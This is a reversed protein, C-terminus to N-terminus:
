IPQNRCIECTCQSSRLWHKVKDGFRTKPPSDVSPSEYDAQILAYALEESVLIGYGREVIHDNSNGLESALKFALKRERVMGVTTITLIDSLRHPFKERDERVRNRVHGSLWESIENKPAQIAQIGLSRCVDNVVVRLTNDDLAFERALEEFRVREKRSGSSFPVRSKLGLSPQVPSGKNDDQGYHNLLAVLRNRTALCIYIGDPREVWQDGKSLMQKLDQYGIGSRVLYRLPYPFKENEIEALRKVIMERERFDFLRNQDVYDGLVGRAAILVSDLSSGTQAAIAGFSVLNRSKASEVSSMQASRAWARLLEATNNSLFVGYSRTVWKHTGPRLASILQGGTAGTEAALKMLSVPYQRQDEKIRGVVSEKQFETLEGNASLGRLGVVDEIVQILFSTDVGLEHSIRQVKVGANLPPKKISELASRVSVPGRLGYSRHTIRYERLSKLVRTEDLGNARIFESIDVPCETKDILIQHEIKAIEEASLPDSLLFRNGLIEKAVQRVYGGPSQSRLEIARYQDFRSTSSVVKRSPSQSTKKPPYQRAWKAATSPGVMWHGGSKVIWLDRGHVFKNRLEREDRIELKSVVETLSITCDNMMSKIMGRLQEGEAEDVSSASDRKIGINGAFKVLFNLDIGFEDAISRIELKKAGGYLSKRLYIQSLLEATSSSVFWDGTRRVLWEHNEYSFSKRVKRIDVFSLDEVVVGLEIVCSGVLDSLKERLAGAEVENVTSATDAKLGLHKAIEVCFNLDVDLHEAIARISVRAEPAKLKQDVDGRTSEIKDGLLLAREVSGSMKAATASSIGQALEESTVGARSALKRIDGVSLQWLEVLSALTWLQGFITVDADDTEEVTGPTEELVEQSLTELYRNLLDDYSTKLVGVLDDFQKEDLQRMLRTTDSSNKMLEDRTALFKHEYCSSDIGLNPNVILARLGLEYMRFAVFDAAPGISGSSSKSVGPHQLEGDGVASKLNEIEPLWLSDYDLLKLELEAGSTAVMMNDGSLDGHAMRLERMRKELASMAKLLRKLGEVDNSRCAEEVFRNFVTGDVWKVLIVPFRDTFGSVGIEDDRYEVPVMVDLLEGRQQRAHIVQYREELDAQQKYLLRIAWVESDIMAKAVVAFGGTQYISSHGLPGASEVRMNKLDPSSMWHKPDFLSDDYAVPLPWRTRQKTQSVRKEVKTITENAGNSGAPKGLGERAAKRRVRDAQADAMSSSVNKVTIGMSQALLLCERNTLGLEKALEAVRIKKEAM